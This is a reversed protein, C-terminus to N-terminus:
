SDGDTLGLRQSHKALTANTKLELDQIHASLIRELEAQHAQDERLFRTGVSERSPPRDTSMRGPINGMESFGSIDVSSSDMDGFNEDGHRHGRFAPQPSSPPSPLPSGSVISGTELSHLAESGIDASTDKWDDTGEPLNRTQNSLAPHPTSRPSQGGVAPISRSGFSPRTRAPSGKPSPQPREVGPGHLSTKPTAGGEPRSSDQVTRSWSDSQRIPGLGDQLGSEQSQKTQAMQLQRQIAHLQSQLVHVDVDVNRVDQSQIGDAARQWHLENSAMGRPYTGDVATHKQHIHGDVPVAQTHDSLQSGSLSRNEVRLAELEANAIKLESKSRERDEMLRHEADSLKMRLTEVLANRQGLASTLVEIEQRMAALDEQLRQEMGDSLERKAKQSAQQMRASNEMGRLEDTRETLVLNLAANDGQVSDLKEELRGVEMKLRAESEVLLQIKRQSDQLQTRLLSTEESVQISRKRTEDEHSRLMSEKALLSSNFKAEQDRLETRTAHLTGETSKLEQQLSAVEAELIHIRHEKRGTDELLQRNEEEAGRRRQGTEELLEELRQITSNKGDLTDQARQLQGEVHVIRAKFDLDSQDLLQQRKGLQHKYAAVDEQLAQCNEALKQRQTELSEVQKKFARRQVDWERSQVEYDDIKTQAMKLDVRAQRLKDGFEEKAKEAGEGQKGHHRQLKEYSKQLLKLEKRLVDVQQEYQSVLEKQSREMGSLEHTLRSVEASKLDLTMKVSTLEEERQKLQAETSKLSAEWELRKSNVMIDIQRMLEQLEAECSSLSGDFLGAMQAQQQIDGM